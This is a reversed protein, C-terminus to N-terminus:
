MSHFKLNLFYTFLRVKSMDPSPASAAKKKDAAAKAAATAHSWTQGQDAKALFVTVM